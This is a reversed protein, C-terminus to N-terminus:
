WMVCNYEWIEFKPGDVGMNTMMHVPLNLPEFELGGVCLTTWM